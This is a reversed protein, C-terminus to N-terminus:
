AFEKYIDFVLGGAMVYLNTGGFLIGSQHNKNMLAPMAVGKYNMSTFHVKMENRNDESTQIWNKHMNLNDYMHFGTSNGFLAAANGNQWEFLGSYNESDSDDQRRSIAFVDAAQHLGIQIGNVKNNKKYSSSHIIGLDEGNKVDFFDLGIRSLRINGTDGAVVIGESDINVYNSIGNWATKVFNSTNGVLSNVNVNILNVNAANLTGATIQDARIDKIMASTIVANDINTQATIHLKKGDILISEPGINIQNIVDGRVVRLNIDSSLQTIQSSTAFNETNESYPKATKGPNIQIESFYWKGGNLKSFNIILQASSVDVVESKLIEFEKKQWIGSHSLDLSSGSHALYTVTGDTHTVRLYVEVFGNDGDSKDGRFYYNLNWDKNNLRAPDNIEQKLMQSSLPSIFGIYDHTFPQFGNSKILYVKLGNQVVWRNIGDSFAGNQVLNYNQTSLDTIVSTLQSDLLNVKADFKTSTVRDQIARDTQNRYSTFDASTVRDQILRDTQARYSEFVESSITQKLGDELQALTVTSGGKLETVEKSVVNADDLAKAADDIGQQAKKDAANAKDVGSQALKKATETDTKAQEIADDIEKTHKTSLIFMWTVGDWQYMEMYKGNPKYWLDGVHKATPTNPGRFITNMGNAATQIIDKWKDLANEHKRTDESIQDIKDGLTAQIDGLEISDYSDLLVNWVVRSVKTTTDIGLKSFRIPVEDCLDVEELLSSDAYNTTKSLDLFSLKISINPIGIQNNNIYSQALFKLKEQVQKVSLYTTKDDATSDGKPKTGVKVNEFESSFDVPQIKRNPYNGVYKSDVIYGDITYIQTEEGAPMSLMAYPYLSTFTNTINEEQQFDTINRGYALLTNATTGRNKLLSIHLNDFRYEGHWRDLISGEVGGLVQRANSFKDISWATSTQTEIDSDVTINNPEIISDKWQHLASEANMNVASVNPKLTLDNTLYSVHEAYVSIVTKGSSDMTPTVTKIVFRQDKLLHGADVKIIRNNKILDARRGGIPYTMEFIFEGNREETVLPSIADPLTGLGLSFFDTADAEYLVPYSM